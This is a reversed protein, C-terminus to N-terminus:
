LNQSFMDIEKKLELNSLSNYHVIDFYYPIPLTEELTYHLEGVINTNINEGIIAIDVDSARSYDGRARSGFIKAQEIEAFRAIANKIMKIEDDTLGYM